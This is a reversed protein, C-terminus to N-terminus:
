ARREITAVPVAVYAGTLPEAPSRGLSLLLRTTAADIAWAREILLANRRVGSRLRALLGALQGTPRTRDAEGLAAIRVALTAQLATARANAADLAALDHNGVAVGIADIVDALDALTADLDVDAGPGTTRRAM